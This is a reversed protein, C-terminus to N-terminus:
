QLAVVVTDSFHKFQSHRPARNICQRGGIALDLNAAALPHQGSHVASGNLSQDAISRM